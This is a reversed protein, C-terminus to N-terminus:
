CKAVERTGPGTATPGGAIAAVEGAAQGLVDFVIDPHDSMTPNQYCNVVHGDYFTYVTDCLALTEILDSSVLVVTVGHQTLERVRDHLQMKADIDIGATPEELILVHKARAMARAMLVKQQNGGSLSTIRDESDQYKVKFRELLSTTRTRESPESVVGFRGLEALQTLCLNERISLTAFIGNSARGSPLYSIGHEFAGAPSNVHYLHGNLTFNLSTAKDLGMLGRPIQEAGSGVVGYLGIIEGRGMRISVSSGDRQRVNDVQLTVANDVTNACPPKTTKIKRGTLRELVHDATISPEMPFSDVVSGDRMVTVHDGLEMVDEIHHTILVLSKGADRWDRLACFLRQKELAGLMATPEDLIVLVPDRMFAKAIELMQQTSVPLRKVPEAPDIDLGFRELARAVLEIEAQHHLCGFPHGQNENGLRLNELVSLDPALSLEQFVLAVGQKRADNIHRFTVPQGQWELRGADPAYLGGVIKGITSKGAGNEGLLCHIRGTEFRLSVDRLAVTAGFRKSLGQLALLPGAATQTPVWSRSSAATSM